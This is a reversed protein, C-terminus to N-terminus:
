RRIESENMELAATEAVVVPLTLIFCSGKRLESEVSVDGGHQEAIAKVIALGLGNGEIDDHGSNRVRYFRDFIHPLDSAPIGYGTDQVRISVHCDDVQLSLHVTGENPTYKIANGVLNHLVQGLQFADGRVKPSSVTEELLLKQGKLDAQPKFEDATQLLLSHIDVEDNKRELGLDMKALDLMNEVLESMHTTGRLIRQVFDTQNENLEGGFMILQAYGKISTIPNRLDHSATAVFENKVRELDKFHTVDHLIAVCGGNEIPTLLASFAQKNPSIFEGTTPKSTESATELLEILSDYGRGRALPLGLKADYGAFLKEGAPNLLSLCGDADFVLIADAASQLVANLRLQEKAVSSYLQANEVAISAQSTIAQLLLQHDLNFYGTQEHTLILLGILDHRGFMPVIIASKVPTDPGGQWFTDTETDAIILSQRTEKVKGVLDNLPPLQTATSSSVADLHYERHFPAKENFIFVHGQMAGLTEVTRRLIIDALEDINPRASLEKGIEPLLNLERNRRRIVDEAEKVRLKSHIRALLERRDFPKTVYDDAGMNFGSQVDKSDLRAATLIIVPIHETAPDERIEKLVAFGDKHPMNVDLLVLDPMQSRVKELADLGDKAGIYSYGENVMYRALLTVNEPHDDAILINFTKRAPTDKKNVAIAQGIESMAKTVLERVREPHVPKIVVEKVKLRQATVKLGPVDYATMLFSVAPRGAPHSHLKEILELGTMEPMIMDTLLIDVAGDNVQELAEHGNTASRVDVNPGLQSLARALTSATNPHDDVVLIKITKGM